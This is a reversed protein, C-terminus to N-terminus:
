LHTLAAPGIIYGSSSVKKKPTLIYQCGKRNYINCDPHLHIVYGFFKGGIFLSKHWMDNALSATTLDSDIFLWNDVTDRLFLGKIGILDPLISQAYYGNVLKPVTEIRYMKFRM